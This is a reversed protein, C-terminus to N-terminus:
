FRSNILYLFYILSKIRLIYNHIRLFLCNISWLYWWILSYTTLTTKIFLCRSSNSIICWLQLLIWFNLNFLLLLYDHWLIIEYILCIIWILVLYNSHILLLFFTKNLIILAYLLNTKLRIFNRSRLHLSLIDNIVIMLILNIPRSKM